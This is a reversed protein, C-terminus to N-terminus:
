CVNSFYCFIADRAHQKNELRSHLSSWALYFFVLLCYAMGHSMVVTDTRDDISSLPFLISFPFVCGTKTLYMLTGPQEPVRGNQRTKGHEMASWAVESGKPWSGNQKIWKLRTMGCWAIRFPFSTVYTAGRETRKDNYANRRHLAVTVAHRDDSWFNNM